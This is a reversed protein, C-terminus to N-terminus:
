RLLFRRPSTGSELGPSGPAVALAGRRGPIAARRPRTRDDPCAIPQPPSVHPPRGHCPGGRGAPYVSFVHASDLFGADSRVSRPPSLITPATPQGPSPSKKPTALRRASAIVGVAAYAWLAVPVKPDIAPRGPHGEVAKIGEYLTTMDLGEVLEWILRAPHGEPILEDLTKPNPGAQSRDPAELRPLPREPEWPTAEQRDM